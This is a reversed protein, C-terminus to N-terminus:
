QRKLKIVGMELERIYFKINDEWRRRPRKRENKLGNKDECRRLM